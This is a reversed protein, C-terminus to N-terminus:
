KSDSQQSRLKQLLVKRTVPQPAPPRRAPAEAKSIEATWDVAPVFTSPTMPEPAPERMRAEKLIKLKEDISRQPFDIVPPLTVAAPAPEIDDPEFDDYEDTPAANGAAHGRQQIWRRQSTSYNELTPRSPP